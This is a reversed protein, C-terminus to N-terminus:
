KLFGSAVNVAEFLDMKHRFSERWGTKEEGDIEVEVPFQHDPITAKITNM